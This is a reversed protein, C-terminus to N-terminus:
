VLRDVVARAFTKIMADYFVRSDAPVTTVDTDPPLMPMAQNVDVKLDFTSFRTNDTSHSIKVSGALVTNALGLMDQFGNSLEVEEIDINVDVGDDSIRDTLETLIAAKLDDSIHGWYKAAEPNQVSAIDVTVDVSKVTPADQAIASTGLLVAMATTVAFKRLM